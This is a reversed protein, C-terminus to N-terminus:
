LDAPRRDSRQFPRPWCVESLLGHRALQRLFDTWFTEAQSAGIAMGLVISPWCARSAFALLGEIRDRSSVRDPSRPPRRGDTNVGVAIIVAVSVIRGNQRVKM